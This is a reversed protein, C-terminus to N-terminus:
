FTSLRTSNWYEAMSQGKETTVEHVLYEKLWEDPQWNLAQEESEFEVEVYYFESGLGEDVLNAELVLGNALAYRRQEKGIMPKGIFDKLQEFLEASIETEIEKRSLGGDGKFCLIYSTQKGQEQHSRIRVAPATTVYGQQMYLTRVPVADPWGNTLWKREIEM